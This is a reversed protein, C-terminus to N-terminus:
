RIGIVLLGDRKFSAVWFQRVRSKQVRSKQVKRDKSLDGKLQVLDAVFMPVDLLIREENDKSIEDVDLNSNSISTFANISEDIDHIIEEFDLNVYKASPNRIVPAEEPGSHAM